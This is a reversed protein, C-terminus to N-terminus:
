QVGSDALRQALLGEAGETRTSSEDRLKPLFDALGQAGDKLYDKYRKADEVVGYLMGLPTSPETASEGVNAHVITGGTTYDPAVFPLSPDLCGLALSDFLRISLISSWCRRITLLAAWSNVSARSSAYM